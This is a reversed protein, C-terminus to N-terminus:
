FHSFVCVSTDRFQLFYLNWSCIVILRYPLSKKQPRHSNRAPTRVKRLLSSVLYANPLSLSCVSTTFVYHWGRCVPHPKESVVSECLCNPVPTFAHHLNRVCVLSLLRDSQTSPMSCNGFKRTLLSKKRTGVSMPTVM